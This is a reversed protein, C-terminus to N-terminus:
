SWCPSSAPATDRRGSPIAATMPSCLTYTACPPWTYMKWVVSPEDILLWYTVTVPLRTPRPTYPHACRRRCCRKSLKSAQMGLLRADIRRHAPSLPAGRHRPAFRRRFVAASPPARAASPLGPGSVLRLPVRPVASSRARSAASAARNSPTLRRWASSRGSPAMSFVSSFRLLNHAYYALDPRPHHNQGIPLCPMRVMRNHRRESIFRTEQPDSCPAPPLAANPWFPISSSVSQRRMPRELNDIRTEIRINPGTEDDVDRREDLLTM